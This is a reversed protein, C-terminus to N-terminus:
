CEYINIHNGPVLRDLIVKMTETLTYTSDNWDKRRLITEWFRYREGVYSLLGFVIMMVCV